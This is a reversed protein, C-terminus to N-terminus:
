NNKFAVVGDLTSTLYFTQHIEKDNVKYSVMIYRLVPTAKKYDAKKWKAEKGIEQRMNNIAQPSVRTTSDLKGFNQIDIKEGQYHQEIYDEVLAKAKHTNGCAAMMTLIAAMLLANFIRRM